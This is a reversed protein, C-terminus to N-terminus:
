YIAELEKNEINFDLNTINNKIILENNEINFDIDLISNDYELILNGDEFYAKANNLAEIQEDTLKDSKINVIIKGFGDFGSPVEYIGNKTIELDQLLIETPKVTIKSFGYKTPKIIQEEARPQVIAEELEPYVKKVGLKVNEFNIKKKIKVNGFNIQM